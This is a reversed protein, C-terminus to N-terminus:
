GIKKIRASRPRSIKLVLLCWKGFGTPKAQASLKKTAGNGNEFGNGMSVVATAGWLKMAAPQCCRDQLWAGGTGKNIRPLLGHNEYLCSCELRLMSLWLEATPPQGLVSLAGAASTQPPQMTRLDMGHRAFLRWLCFSAIVAEFVRTKSAKQTGVGSKLLDPLGLIL